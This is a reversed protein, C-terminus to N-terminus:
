QAPWVVQDKEDITPEWQIETLINDEFWLNLGQTSYQYLAVKSGDEFELYEDNIKPEYLRTSQLAALVDDSSLGILFHGDLSASHSSIECTYFRYNKEQDFCVSLGRSWYYWTITVEDPDGDKSIEDPEGLYAHVQDQRAGFKLDGIGVGLKVTNCDNM